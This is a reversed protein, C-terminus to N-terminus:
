ESLVRDVDRVPPFTRAGYHQISYAAVFNGAKLCKELSYGKVYGYLFGASFADGAGTTDVVKVRFAPCHVSKEDSYAKCGKESMTVVLVDVFELFKEANGGLMEFEPLSLIVIDTYQLLESLREFGMASYPHGPNLIVTKGRETAKRAIELHIEFSNAAPFPDLYFYEVEDYDGNPISVAASGAANPHVFFTREGESDVYIDVRGTEPHTVAARVDVGVKKLSSIFFDADSDTGITSYFRCPLGFSALGYIVNAAAGGAEKVSNRVIAQGGRQPYSDISYIHDVLAPGVGAIM